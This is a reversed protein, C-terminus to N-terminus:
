DDRKELNNEELTEHLYKDLSYGLVNEAQAKILSMTQMLDNKRSVYQEETIQKKVYLDAYVTYEMQAKLLATLFMREAGKLPKDFKIETEAEFVETEYQKVLVTKKFVVRLKNSNEGMENFSASLMDEITM